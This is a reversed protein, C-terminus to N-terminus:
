DLRQRFIESKLHRAFGGAHNTITAAPTQTQNCGNAQPKAFSITHEKEVPQGHREEVEEVDRQRAASYRPPTKQVINRSTGEGRPRHVEAVQHADLGGFQALLPHRQDQQPHLPPRALEFREIGFRPGVVASRGLRDVCGHGADADGFAPLLGGSLHLLDGENTRHVVFLPLM